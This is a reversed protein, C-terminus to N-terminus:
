KVSVMHPQWCAMKGTRSTSLKGQNEKLQEEDNAKKQKEKWHTLLEAIRISLHNRNKM